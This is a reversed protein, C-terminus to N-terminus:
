KETVKTLATEVTIHRMSKETYNGCDISLGTETVKTLATGETIHRM